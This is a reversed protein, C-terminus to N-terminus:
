TRANMMQKKTGHVMWYKMLFVMKGQLNLQFFHEPDVTCVFNDLNGWLDIDQILDV